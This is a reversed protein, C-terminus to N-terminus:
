SASVPLRHAAARASIVRIVASLKSSRDLGYARQGRTARTPFNDTAVSGM